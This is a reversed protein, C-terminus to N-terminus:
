STTKAKNEEEDGYKNVVHRMEERLYCAEIIFVLSLLTFIVLFSIPIAYNFGLCKGIFLLVFSLLIGIAFNLDLKYYNYYYHDLREVREKSGKFLFDWWEEDRFLINDIINRFSDLINGVIWAAFFIIIGLAAIIRGSLEIICNLNDPNSIYYPAILLIIFLFGPLVHSM